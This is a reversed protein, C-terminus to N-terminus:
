ETVEILDSFDEDQETEILYDALADFNIWKVPDNSSICGNEREVYYKCEANFLKENQAKELKEKESLDRTWFIYQSEKKSDHCYLNWSDILGYEGVSGVFSKLLATLAEKKDDYRKNDVLWYTM